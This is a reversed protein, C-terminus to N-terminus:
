LRAPRGSPEPELTLRPAVIAFTRQLWVLCDFLCLRWRVEFLERDDGALISNVAPVLRLFERPHFFVEAFAPTYWATVFKLYLDMVRNVRRAYRAFERAQLDPRQLVRNLADAAKEGSLIALYVGSSWVPDIFGAADGALLWREGTLQRCRYSFDGTAYVPSVRTAGALKRAVSPYARVNAALITEPSQGARKYTHADMVLGVSTKRSNIPILWFWRDSARVMQTLSGDVGPEREAGEYHAYLAFKKLHGYARKLRYQHGLLSARGSCDLVYRARRTRGDATGVWGGLADFRIERVATGAVVQCGCEAAHDLLVKDFVAREVQYATPQECRFVHDFLFRNQRTGCGSIIKGGHKIVVDTSEVKEKVGMRQLTRLSGPLLSEGIKFRPFIEKEVLGIKWGQKALLTAATSGAPGGGIILVDFTDAM